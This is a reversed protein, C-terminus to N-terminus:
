SAAVALESDLDQEVDIWVAVVQYGAALLDWNVSFEDIEVLFFHVLLRLEQIRQDARLLVRINDVAM